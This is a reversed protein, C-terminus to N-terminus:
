EQTQRNTRPNEMEICGKKIKRGKQERTPFLFASAPSCVKYPCSLLGESAKANFSKKKKIKENCKGGELGAMDGSGLAQKKAYNSLYM